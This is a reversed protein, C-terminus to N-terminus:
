PFFLAITAFLHRLCLARALQYCSSAKSSQSPTQIEPAEPAFISCSVVLIQRCLLTLKGPPEATLFRGAICSICTQDRPQSSGRSFSIAVWELIKAQFVGHASSGPLNCYM